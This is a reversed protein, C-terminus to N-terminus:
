HMKSQDDCGEEGASKCKDSMEQSRFGAPSTKYIFWSALTFMFAMFTFINYAAYWLENQINSM